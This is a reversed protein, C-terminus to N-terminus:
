GFAHRYMQGAPGQSFVDPDRAVDSFIDEGALWAAEANDNALARALGANLEYAHYPLGARKLAAAVAVAYANSGRLNLLPTPINEGSLNRYSRACIAADASAAFRCTLPRLEYISCADNELLPCPHPHRARAQIDYDKTHLHAAEVRAALGAGRQRIIKATFLIEPASASVRIHCCHSCGKKCAVPIDKLRRLTANATAYLFSVPPDIDKEQKAREFMACLTRAMAATPEPNRTEADIGGALLKEDERAQRRRAARTGELGM